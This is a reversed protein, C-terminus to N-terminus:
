NKVEEAMEDISEGYGSVEAVKDSLEIIEGALLTKYLLATSDVVNAEKIWEADKFNPTVVNNIIILENFKTSDFDRKKGNVTLCLKQYKSMEAGTLPKIVFEFDKLRGGLRVTATMNDVPNDMLFKQLETM